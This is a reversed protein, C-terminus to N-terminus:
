VQPVVQGWPWRNTSFRWMCVVWWSIYLLLNVNLPMVCKDGFSASLISLSSKSSRADLQPGPGELKSVFVPQGGM